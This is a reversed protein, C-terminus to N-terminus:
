NVSTAPPQTGQSPTTAAADAGPAEPASQVAAATSAPASTTDPRFHGVFAHAADEAAAKLNEPTLKDWAVAGRLRDLGQTLKRGGLQATEQAKTVAEVGQSKLADAQRQVKEGITQIPQM